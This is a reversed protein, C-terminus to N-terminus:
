KAIYIYLFIITYDTKTYMYLSDITYYINICLSFSLLFNPIQIIM